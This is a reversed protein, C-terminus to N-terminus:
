PAAVALAAELVADPNRVAVFRLHSDPLTWADGGLERRANVKALYPQGSRGDFHALRLQDGHVEGALRHEFDRTRFTGTVREFNQQLDAVGRFSTGRDDTYTVTWRGAADANNTLPEAFVGPAQGRTAKFPVSQAPGGAGALAIRGSLEEGSITATLRSRTDPLDAALKGPELQVTTLAIREDGSAVSLRLGHEDRAVKLRCRLEGGKMELTARYRGPPRCV